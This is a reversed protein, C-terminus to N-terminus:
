LDMMDFVFFKVDMKTDGVRLVDGSMLSGTGEVPRMRHMGRRIWTGNTSQYDRIVPRGKQLYICCHSASVLGDRICIENRMPDRGIRIGAEPDFVFGQPESGRVRIYIMLRRIVPNRQGRSRIIEDLCNEKIM